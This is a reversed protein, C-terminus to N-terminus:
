HLLLLKRSQVLSGAQIRYVHVGSTVRSGYFSVEYSGAEEVENVLTSLEPGLLDYVFPIKATGHHITAQIV